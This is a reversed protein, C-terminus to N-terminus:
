LLPVPSKLTPRMMESFTASSREAHVSRASPSFTSGNSTRGDYPVTNASSPVVAAVYAASTRASPTYRTALSDAPAAACTISTVPLVAMWSLRPSIGVHADMTNEPTTVSVASQSQRPSPVNTTGAPAIM